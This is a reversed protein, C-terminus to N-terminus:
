RATSSPKEKGLMIAGVAWTAVFAVMPAPVITICPAIMLEPALTPLIQMMLELANTSCSAITSTWQVDRGASKDIATHRNARATKHTATGDDLIADRDALVADYPQSQAYSLVQRVVAFEYTVIM